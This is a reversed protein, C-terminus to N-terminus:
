LSGRRQSGELNGKSCKPCDKVTVGSHGCRYCFKKRPQGCDQFLHPGSCNWCRNGKSTPVEKRPTAPASPRQTPSSNKPGKRPPVPSGSRSCSVQSIHAKRSPDGQRRQSRSSKELSEGRSGGGALLEAVKCRKTVFEILSKYTPIATSTQEEEFAARTEADLNNLAIQLKLFDGVDPLDLTDLANVSNNHTTLFLELSPLTADTLPSFHLIRNAYLSGLRRSNQYRSKLAEIALPYGTAELPVGSIVSLAENKLCTRLYHFKAVNDLRTDKHVLSEFLSWFERWDEIRGSFTPLHLRPLQSPMHIVQDRVVEEPIDKPKVRLYNNRLTNVMEVFRILAQSTDLRDKEDELQINVRRIQSNVLKFDALLSDAMDVESSFSGVNKVTLRTSKDFITQVTAFLDERELRLIELEQGISFEKRSMIFLVM